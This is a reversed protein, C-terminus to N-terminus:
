PRAARRRRRIAALRLVDAPVTGEYPLDPGQPAEWSLDPDDEYPYVDLAEEEKEREIQELLATLARDILKSDSTGILRRCTELREGDVTTSLRVRGM